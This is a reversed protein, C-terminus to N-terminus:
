FVRVNRWFDINVIQERHWDFQENIKNWYVSEVVLFVPVLLFGTKHIKYSPCTLVGIRAIM